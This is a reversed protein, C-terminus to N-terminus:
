GGTNGRRGTNRRYVVPTETVEGSPPATEEPPTAELSAEPETAEGQDTVTIENTGADEGFSDLTDGSAKASVYANGITTFIMIVALVTALHRRIAKM